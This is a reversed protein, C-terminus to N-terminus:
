AQGFLSRPVRERRCLIAEHDREGGGIRVTHIRPEFGAERCLRLWTARDFIGLTHHDHIARAPAAGQRLLIAYDIEITSDSPDPDYAWEMFRLSRGPGDHGGTSVGPRWTERFHDPVVLAAGGPRCHVFVTELARALDDETTLYSVADHVFVADFERGLRITRMDGQVHECEPNLARSVALMDASLDVLTMDFDDKLHSANNGGGSGLELVGRPRAAGRLIEAYQRAEGAYEAPSSLLPWWAALEGYLKTPPAPSM